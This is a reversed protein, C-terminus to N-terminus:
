DGTGFFTFNIKLFYQLVNGLPLLDGEGKHFYLSGQLSINLRLLELQSDGQIFCNTRPDPHLHFFNRSCLEGVGVGVEVGM